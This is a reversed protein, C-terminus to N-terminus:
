KQFNNQEFEELTRSNFVDKMTVWSGLRYRRWCKIGKIYVPNPGKVGEFIADKAIFSSKNRLVSIYDKFWQSAKKGDSTLALKDCEKCVYNPFYVPLNSNHIPKNCISCKKGTNLFM